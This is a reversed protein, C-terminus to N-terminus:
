RGIRVQVLRRTSVGALPNDGGKRARAFFQAGYGPRLLQRFDRETQVTFSIMGNADTAREQPTTTVIPTSRVYVLAGSVPRNSNVERVRLTITFSRTRSYSIRRPSFRIQDIVLRNPLTVSEIAVSGTGRTVVSTPDSVATSSGAANRGTVAVRLTSGADASQVTYTQATAGAVATCSAGSANCRQWQYTFTIPQDGTWTGNGAALADGTQPTTDSITPKATSNPGYQADAATVASPVYGVVAAIALAVLAVGALTGATKRPSHGAARAAHRL